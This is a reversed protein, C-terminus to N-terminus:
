TSHRPTRIEIDTLGHWKEPLPLLCKSLFHLTVGSRSNTRRRRFLRGEVGVWDGFDVLKFIQFDLCPARTQRIYVQIKTLGDSPM